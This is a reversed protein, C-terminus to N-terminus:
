RRRLRTGCVDHPVPPPHLGSVYNDVWRRSCTTAESKRFGTWIRVMMRPSWQHPHTGDFTAKSSTAFRTHGVYLRGRGRLALGREAAKKEEVDLKTRVGVSLDGRKTNVVRARAGFMGGHEDGWGDTLYTVVGGSQAGRMMTVQIMKQLIDKAANGGETLWLKSLIVMGFNGCYFWTHPPLMSSLDPRQRTSAATANQEMGLLDTWIAEAATFTAVARVPWTTGPNGSDAPRWLWCAVALALSTVWGAARVVRTRWGSEEVDIRVRRNLLADWLSQASIVASGGCGVACAALLHSVEHLAGFLLWYAVLTVAMRLM